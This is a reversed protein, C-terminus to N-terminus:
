LRELSDFDIDPQRMEPLRRFKTNYETSQNFFGGNKLYFRNNNLLGGQYDLRVGARATNDYTFNAETLEHWKGDKGLAWQNAFEVFRTLYGQNPSFNELFSHAGRYWTNTKPRLFSAILRWRNEDTAYFYATYITNGKGDPRVQTLFKYTLGATWNYILYSQGGSGENGFEGVHVGEGKRLMKIQEEEPIDKPNDTQYPSWVSFLVRKERPSNAQIGFYGEGFGNAMYYSGIIEGEKPVTVENYLWEITDKPLTYKLHVSPGRRGWYDSFDHVYTFKGSANKLILDKIRGYTDGQKNIGQIDIRVYGPKKVKIKGVSVTTLEDSNLDVKHSKGEGSLKIRSQGAASLAIDLTQPEEVHFYVRIIDSQKTWNEIGQESVRFSDRDRGRRQQPEANQETRITYANGAMGIIVDNDSAYSMMSIAIFLLSLLLSKSVGTM